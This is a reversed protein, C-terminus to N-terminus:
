VPVYEPKCGAMVSNIVIKEITALGEGPPIIGICKAPDLKLYDLMARVKKETPPLVPLGDTWGREYALETFGDIDAVDFTKSVLSQRMASEEWDFSLDVSCAELNDRRVGSQRLQERGLLM